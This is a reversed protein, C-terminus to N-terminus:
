LTAPLCDGGSAFAQLDVLNVISKTCVTCCARQRKCCPNAELTMFSTSFFTKSMRPHSCRSPTSMMPNMCTSSDTKCCESAGALIRPENLREHPLTRPANLLLKQQEAKLVHLLGAAHGALCASRHKETDVGGRTSKKSSSTSECVRSTQTTSRLEKVRFFPNGWLPRGRARQGGVDAVGGALLKPELPSQFRGSHSRPIKRTVFRCAGGQLEDWPWAM